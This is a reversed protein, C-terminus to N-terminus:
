HKKLFETTTALDRQLWAANLRITEVSQSVTRETGPFQHEKFFAEVEKAKEETAFNETLYKVLRSLLFGGEYQDLLVRWNERFFSWTMERGKPNMAVAVIVFISDQARVEDSMAFQVVQRLIDVDKVVGLARSIRDKEEHLDTARYLKLMEEYTSADGDQLVARYCASRLDAPLVCQGSTHLQFRKKAEEMVSPCNFAVLRNLVLSRLLTDLHSEGSKADWGLKDAVPQYLRM